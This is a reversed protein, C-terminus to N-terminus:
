GGRTGMEGDGRRGGGGKGEGLCVKTVNELYFEQAKSWRLRLPGGAFGGLIGSQRGMRWNLVGTHTHTPPPPPLPLGSPRFPCPTAEPCQLTPHAGCAHMCSAHPGGLECPPGRGSGARRQEPVAWARGGQRRRQGRLVPRVGPCRRCGVRGVRVQPPRPPTSSTMSRSRTSRSSRAAARDCVCLWICAHVNAAPVHLTLSMRRDLLWGLAPCCGTCTCAHTAHMGHPRAGRRATRSVAGDAAQAGEYQRGAYMLCTYVSSGFASHMCAHAWRRKSGPTHPPCAAYLYAAACAVRWAWRTTPVCSLRARGCQVAPQGAWRITYRRETDKAALAFLDYMARPTIGLQTVPTSEFDARPPGAM